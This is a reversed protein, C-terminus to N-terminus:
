CEAGAKATIEQRIVSEVKQYLRRYDVRMLATERAQAGMRRTKAPDDLMASMAAILGAADLEDVLAGTVGTEVLEPIGAHRTSLIAAGAAMAEQIASPLGETEGDHGMVSHLVFIEARSLHAQVQQSNQRGHFRIRDSYGSRAAIARCVKLLPGDGVMDLRAHPYRQAVSLFCEMTLQPAKKEVFRGVFLMQGPTKKGPKFAEIDTGSPVVHANPHTLGQAALNDLLFQSVAFVGALNPMMRRYGEVRNADKLYLSADRGRFYSFVPIGESKCVPWLSVAQSGFEALVADVQERQLFAALKRRCTGFPVFPARYRRHNQVLYWPALVMDRPNMSQRLRSFVPKGHPAQGTIRGCVVVTNGGFLCEVHRNVFTEGSRFYRGTAICLRPVSPVNRSPPSPIM